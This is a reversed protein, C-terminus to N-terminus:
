IEYVRVKAHSRHWRVVLEESPPDRFAAPAMSWQGCSCTFVRDKRYQYVGQEYLFNLFAESAVYCANRAYDPVGWGPHQERFKEIAQELTM